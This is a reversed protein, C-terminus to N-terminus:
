PAYSLDDVARLGFARVTFGHTQPAIEPTGVCRGLCRAGGQAAAM